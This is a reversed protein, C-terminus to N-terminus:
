GNRRLSAALDIFSVLDAESADIWLPGGDVPWRCGRTLYVGPQELLEGLRMQVANWHGICGVVTGAQSFVTNHMASGYEGIVIAAGGFLTIQEAISLTEPRVVEFGRARAATEFVSRLPFPRTDAHPADGRTVCLRREGPRNGTRLGEYFRRVDPHFSYEGSFGFSPRVARALRLYEEGRRYWAVARRDLGCTEEMLGVAWDPADTPLPVVCDAFRDGLLDRAIALAPLFEVIWHGWITHGPGGVLLAPAEIRREPRDGARAAGYQDLSAAAIRASISGDHLFGDARMAVGPARLVVEDIFWCGVEAAIAAPRKWFHGHTWRQVDDTLEHVPRSPATPRAPRWASYGRGGSWCQEVSMPACLSGIPITRM